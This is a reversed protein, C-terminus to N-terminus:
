DSNGLVNIWLSMTKPVNTDYINEMVFISAKVLIKDRLFM